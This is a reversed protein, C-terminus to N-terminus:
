LKEKSQTAYLSEKMLREYEIRLTEQEGRLAALQERARGLLQRQRKALSAAAASQAKKQVIEFDLEGQRQRSQEFAPRLYAEDECDLEEELLALQHEEQETLSHDFKRQQLENFRQQKNEDWM